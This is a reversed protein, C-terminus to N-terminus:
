DVWMLDSMIDNSVFLGKKSLRMQGNELLLRGQQLHKKANQLCYDSFLTGYTNKLTELNMGECTRLATFVFEDYQESRSLIETEAPFHGKEAGQLYTALSDPNAQRTQGDFSHAGAGVGLYPIGKWYSSNHMSRKGPRAFNSIEYHEFGARKMAEMLYEYMALSVEEDIEAITGAARLKDLATEEEYMLSYASLHQVDLAIAREVDAKWQELTQGPFGFMLDISINDFGAAKAQTVAEIAQRATHRRHLFRLRKDDFTQLGMSLRNIGLARLQSLSENADDPNCELTIERAHVNYINYVTDLLTSIQQFSLLSPTGGGFYITKIPDGHLYDRRVELERCVARVYEDRLSLFTTSFFGCYICRSKCFPIHLYIGAMSFPRISAYM